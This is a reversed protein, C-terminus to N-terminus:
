LRCSCFPLFSLSATAVPLARSSFVSRRRPSKIARQQQAPPSALLTAQPSAIHPYNLLLLCTEPPTSRDRDRALTLSRRAGETHLAPSGLDCSNGPFKNSFCASFSDKASSSVNSPWFLEPDVGGAHHPPKSTSVAKTIEDIRGQCM